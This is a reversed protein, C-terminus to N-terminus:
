RRPAHRTLRTCAAAGRLAWHPAARAKQAWVLANTYKKFQTAPARTEVLWAFFTECAGRPIHKHERVNAPLADREADPLVYDIYGWFNDVQPWYGKATSKKLTAEYAKARAVWSM